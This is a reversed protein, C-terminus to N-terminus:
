KGNLALNWLSDALESLSFPKPFIRIAGSRLLEEVDYDAMSTFFCCRVNPNTAQMLGLAKVGDMVPMRIDMLVLDIAELTSRFVRVAEAGDRTAIVEFGSKCLYVKLLDRITDEDDAILITPKRDHSVLCMQVISACVKSHALHTLTVCNISWIALRLSFACLGSTKEVNTVFTMRNFLVSLVSKGVAASFESLIDFQEDTPM